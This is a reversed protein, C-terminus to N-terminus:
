AGNLGWEVADQPTVARAFPDLRVAVGETARRVTGSMFDVFPRTHHLSSYSVCIECTFSLTESAAEDDGEEPDPAIEVLVSFKARVFVGEPAYRAHLADTRWSESLRERLPARDFGEGFALRACDCRADLVGEALRALNAPHLALDPWRVPPFGEAPAHQGGRRDYHEIAERDDM